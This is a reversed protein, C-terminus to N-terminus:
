RIPFRSRLDASPTEKKLTKLLAIFRPWDNDLADFARQLAARDVEDHYVGRGAIVANNLTKFGLGAKRLRSLGEAFVLEREALKTEATASSKYISDLRRYADEFIDDGEKEEALSSEYDKVEKSGPGFRAALFQRAGTEGVFDALTEDFQGQSKFFVTGHTLEHLILAVLRGAPAQLAPSPLPDSFPLPTQYATACSVTADYGRREMAQAEAEADAQKFYGKYPFSGIFPFYWQYPELSLRPAAEALFTVCERDIPTWTSFDSRRKLGMVDFGFDRADLVVRLKARLEVSTKPDDVTRQISRRHVLLRAQGAAAKFVYVPSCGALLAASLLTLRAM